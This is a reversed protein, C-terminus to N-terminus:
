DGLEAPLVIVPRTTVRIVREATSGFLLSEATGRTGMVIAHVVPVLLRNLDFM